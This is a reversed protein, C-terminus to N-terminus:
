ASTLTLQRQLYGCVLLCMSSTVRSDSGDPRVMHASASAQCTNGPQNGLWVPPVRMVVSVVISICDWVRLSALLDM